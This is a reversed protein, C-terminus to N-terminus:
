KSLIFYFYFFEGAVTGKLHQHGIRHYDRASLVARYSHDLDGIRAGQLDGVKQLDTWREKEEEGWSSIVKGQMNLTVAGGTRITGTRGM